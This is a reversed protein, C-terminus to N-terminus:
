LNNDMESRDEQSLEKEGERLKGAFKDYYRLSLRIMKVDNDSLSKGFDTEAKKGKLINEQVDYKEFKSLDHLPHKNKISTSLGKATGGAQYYKELWNDAIEQQNYRTAKALNYLAKSRDSDSRHGGSGKGEKEKADWIINKVNWYAAEEVDFDKFVSPGYGDKSALGAFYDYPRQAAFMRAFHEMKDSIPRPNFLDPYAQYGLVLEGTGKVFPNYSQVLKNVPGKFIEEAAKKAAIDGETKGMLADLVETGADPIGFNDLFDWFAGVVPLYQVTGDPNRGTILQVGKVGTSRMEDDEDPWMLRNYAMAGATFLTLQVWRQAIKFATATVGRKAAMLLVRKQTSPNSANIMLQTYRKFNGEM